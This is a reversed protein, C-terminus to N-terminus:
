RANLIDRHYRAMLVTGLFLCILGVSMVYIPSTYTPTYTAYFGARMMGIIHILPNYWMITQAVPPVSEYLFFIGSLLFLPRTLISWVNMWVPFLGILACNLMGIGAGFVICSLVSLMIPGVSLLAQSDTMLLVVSFIIVKVLLETLINLFFRAAVADAWTVAPYFLLARSFNISRSMNNSVSQYLGFPLIGTAYFLIYSNGLAPSRFLFSMATALILIAGLPEILAWAYGGPSKGYRTAMERLMLASIVRFSGFPRESGHKVRPSQAPPLAAKPGPRANAGPFADSM